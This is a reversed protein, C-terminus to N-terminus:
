GLSVVFGHRNSNQVMIGQMQLCTTVGKPQVKFHPCWNGKSKSKGFRNWTEMIRGRCLSAGWFGCWCWNNQKGKSAGKIGLRYWKHLRPTPHVVAMPEQTHEQFTPSENSFNAFNQAFLCERAVKDPLPPSHHPPFSARISKFNKLINQKQCLSSVRFREPLPYKKFLVAVFQSRNECNTNWERKRSNEVETWSRQVPLQKPACQGM